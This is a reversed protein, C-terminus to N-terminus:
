LKSSGDKFLESGVVKILAPVEQWNDPWHFGMPATRHAVTITKCGYKVCSGIDEASYSSGLILIDQNVFEADRFDHANPDKGLGAFGDCYPINPTPM